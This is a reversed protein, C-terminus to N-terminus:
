GLFLSLENLDAAPYALRLGEARCGSGPGKFGSGQVMFQGRFGEGPGRFGLGRVM